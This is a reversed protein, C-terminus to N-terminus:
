PIFRREIEIQLEEYQAKLDKIAAKLAVKAAACRAKDAWPWIEITQLDLIRARLQDRIYLYHQGLDYDEWTTIPGAPTPRGNQLAQEAWSDFKTKSYM